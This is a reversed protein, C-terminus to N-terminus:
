KTFRNLIAVIAFIAAMVAFISIMGYLMIPLTDLFAAFNINM